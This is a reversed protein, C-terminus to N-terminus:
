PPVQRQYCAQKRTCVYPTRETFRQLDCPARYSLNDGDCQTRDLLYVEDHVFSLPENM